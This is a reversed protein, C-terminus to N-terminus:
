ALLKGLEQRLGAADDYLIAPMGAAIAGDINRQQDDIFVCEGPDVGLQKAMVGFAEAQPKIFGSEFSLAIADFLALQSATFIQHLYNGAVNSLLGLKYDKKLESVYAFLEEDPVNHAIAEVAQEPTIGALKAIVEM